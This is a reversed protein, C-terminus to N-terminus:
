RLLGGSTLNKTIILKSLCENTQVPSKQFYEQCYDSAFRRDINQTYKKVRFKKVMNRGILM